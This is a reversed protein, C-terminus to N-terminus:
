NRKKWKRREKKDSFTFSSAANNKYHAIIEDANMYLVRKKLDEQFYEFVAGSYKGYALSLKRLEEQCSDSTKKYGLHIDILEEINKLGQQLDIGFAAMRKLNDLCRDLSFGQESLYQDYEGQFSNRKNQLFKIQQSIDQKSKAFFIEKYANIHQEQLPSLAKGRVGEIEIIGLEPESIYVNALAKCVINLSGDDEVLLGIRSFPNPDEILLCSLSLGIIPLHNGTYFSNLRSQQVENLVVGKKPSAVLNVERTIRTDVTYRTETGKIKDSSTKSKIKVDLNGQGKDVPMILGNESIYLDYVSLFDRLTKAKNKSKTAHSYIFQLFADSSHFFHTHNLYQEIIELQNFVAEYFEPTFQDKMAKPDRDPVIGGAQTIYKGFINGHRKDQPVFYYNKPKTYDGISGTDGIAYLLAQERIYLSWKEKPLLTEVTFGQYYSSVQKIDPSVRGYVIGDIPQKLTKQFIQTIRLERIQGNSVEIMAVTKNEVSAYIDDKTQEWNEPSILKNHFPIFIALNLRQGDIEQQVRGSIFGGIHSSSSLSTDTVPYQNQVRLAM